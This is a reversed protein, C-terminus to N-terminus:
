HVHVPAPLHNAVLFPSGAEAHSSTLLISNRTHALVYECMCNSQVMIGNDLFGFGVFPVGAAIAVSTCTGWSPLEASGAEKAATLQRDLKMADTFEQRRM